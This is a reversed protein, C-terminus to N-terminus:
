SAKYGWYYEWYKKFNKYNERALVESKVYFCGPSDLDSGGFFGVVRSGDSFYLYPIYKHVNTNNWDLKTGENYVEAVKALINCANIFKEHPDRTNKNFLFLEDSEEYGLHEALSDVDSVLDYINKPKFFDKGFSEELLEKFEANATKYLRLVTKVDLKLTKKMTNNTQKNIRMPYYLAICCLIICIVGVITMYVLDSM